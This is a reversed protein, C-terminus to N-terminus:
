GSLWWAVFIHLHTVCTQPQRVRRYVRAFSHTLCTLRRPTRCEDDLCRGIRGDDEVPGRLRRREGSCGGLWDDGVDRRGTDAQSPARVGIGARRRDMGVGDLVEAVVGALHTCKLTLTMKENTSWLEGFQNRRVHFFNYNIVGNEAQHNSSGNWLYERVFDVTTRFRTCRQYSM